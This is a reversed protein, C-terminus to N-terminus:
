RRKAPLPRPVRAGVLMRWAASMWGRLAAGRARRAVALVNSTSVDATPRAPARALEAVLPM